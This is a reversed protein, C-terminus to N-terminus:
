SRRTTCDDQPTRSCCTSGARAAQLADFHGRRIPV